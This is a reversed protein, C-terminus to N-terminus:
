RYNLDTVKMDNLYELYEIRYNDDTIFTEYNNEQLKIWQETAWRQQQDEIYDVRKIYLFSILMITLCIIIIELVKLKLNLRKIDRRQRGVAISDVRKNDM